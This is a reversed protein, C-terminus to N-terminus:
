IENNKKPMFQECGYDDENNTKTTQVGNKKVNVVMYRPLIELTYRKCRLLIPCQRYTCPTM